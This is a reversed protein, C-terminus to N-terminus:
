PVFIMGTAPTSNCIPGSALGVSGFVTTLVNGPGTNVVASLNPYTGVLETLGAQGTDRNLWGVTVQGAAPVPGLAPATSFLVQGAGIAPSAEPGAQATVATASALSGQNLCGITVATGMGQPPAAAAVGTFLVAAAVPAAAVLIRRTIRLASM